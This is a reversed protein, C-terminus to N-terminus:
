VHGGCNGPAPKCFTTTSLLVTYPLGAASRAIPMKGFPVCTYEEGRILTHCHNSPGAVCDAAAGLRADDYM